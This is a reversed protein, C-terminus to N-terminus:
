EPYFSPKTKEPIVLEESLNPFLNKMTQIDRGTTEIFYGNKGNDMSIAILTYRSLIKGEPVKMEILQPLTCQLETGKVVVKSPEGIAINRIEYGDSLMKKTEKEILEAFKQRGGTVELLRPYVFKTYSMFDKKLCHQVMIEAQEKITNSYDINKTQGIGLTLYILYFFLTTVLKM